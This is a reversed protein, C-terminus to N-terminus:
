RNETEEAAGEEAAGEEAAGEEAKYLETYSVFGICDDHNCRFRAFQPKM